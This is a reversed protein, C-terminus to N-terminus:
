LHTTLSGRRYASEQSHFDTDLDPDLLSSELESSSYGTASARVQRGM